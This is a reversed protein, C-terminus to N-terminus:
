RRVESTGLIRMVLASFDMGAQAAAKPVLSHSTMGPTTNVELLVPQGRADRILDVRGWGSCDLAAFARLALQQMAQEEAAPLGCPCHYQTTESQYKARYDYFAEGPEIRIVPLAEGEVIGVTYEEGEVFAEVMPQDIALTALTAELAARDRLIHVGVSSGERAPKIVLPLGMEEVLAKASEGQRLARGHAVPLGLAQWIQKSRVKDMSLASGLVGSGTYPVGMAQLYGQLIGDEGPSGHILNFVRDVGGQQIREHLAPMGDIVELDVGGQRLGAAVAEAGLRSIEAEASDGGMVLVVKGPYEAM